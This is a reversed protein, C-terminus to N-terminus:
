YPYIIDESTLRHKRVKMISSRSKKFQKLHMPDKGMWQRILAMPVVIVLYVISLLIKSVLTGIITSLGIWFIGFYYFAMPYIMNLVLVPIAIKYFLTNGTFLGILLLILVIAMGSDSAQKKTIKDPFFSLM